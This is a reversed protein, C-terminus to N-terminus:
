GGNYLVLDAEAVKAADAPTTEYSHPDAAPDKILSTVAVRDGGVAQPISGYVNTPTVLGLPAGGGFAAAPPPPPTSGSGCGALAIAAVALAALAGARRFPM